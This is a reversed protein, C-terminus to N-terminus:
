YVLVASRVLLLKFYITAIININYNFIGFHGISRTLLKDLFLFEQHFIFWCIRKIAQINILNVDSINYKM